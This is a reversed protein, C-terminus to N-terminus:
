PFYNVLRLPNSIYIIGLFIIFGLAPSEEESGGEGGESIDRPVKNRGFEVHLCLKKGAQYACDM